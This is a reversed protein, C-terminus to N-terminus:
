STWEIHAKIAKRADDIWGHPRAKEVMAAFNQQWTADQAVEQRQRLQRESVWAIGQDPIEVIGNLARRAIELGEPGGEIVLKFARFNDRDELTVSGNSSLKIFM